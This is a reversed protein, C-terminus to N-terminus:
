SSQDTQDDEQWVEPDESFGNRADAVGEDVMQALVIEDQENEPILEVIMKGDIGYVERRIM